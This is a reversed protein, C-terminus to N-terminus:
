SSGKTTDFDDSRHNNDNKFIPIKQGIKKRMELYYKHGEEESEVLLDHIEEKSLEKLIESSNENFSMLYYQGCIEALGLYSNKNVQIREVIKILKTRGTMYKNLYKLIWNALFIVIALIILAQILSFFSDVDM